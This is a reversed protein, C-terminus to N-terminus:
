KVPSLIFLVQGGSFHSKSTKGTDALILYYTPTIRGTVYNKM